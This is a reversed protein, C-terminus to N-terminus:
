AVHTHPDLHKAPKYCFGPVVGYSYHTGYGGYPGGDSLVYQFDGKFQGSVSFAGM